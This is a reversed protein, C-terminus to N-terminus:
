GTPCYLKIVTMVSHVFTEQLSKVTPLVDQIVKIESGENCNSLLPLLKGLSFPIVNQMLFSFILAFAKRNTNFTFQKFDKRLM